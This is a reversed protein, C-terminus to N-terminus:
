LKQLAVYATVIAWISVHFDPESPPVTGVGRLWLLIANLQKHEDFSGGMIVPGLMWFYEGPECVQRTIYDSLRLVKIEANFKIQYNREPFGCRHQLLRVVGLVNELGGEWKVPASLVLQPDNKLLLAIHEAKEQKYPDNHNM